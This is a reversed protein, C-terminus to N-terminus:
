DRKIINYQNNKLNKLTQIKGDSWTIKIEPTKKNNGLGVLVRSDHASAYSGDVKLQRYIKTSGLDVEIKASYDERKLEKRILKLGIWNNNSDNHNILIQPSGSNNTVVLDLDGDNDIDGYSVGRSVGSKLFSADQEKTMEKYKSKGINQWIQNVQELPYKLGQKMQKPEKIVAGNASFLDLMGDNNYDIWITGFGTSSFSTSGLGLKVGSDAFWGKGNNVYLTNTQRKLHTMFLDVDGDNDFDGADVGMSAEALGTMNVAVGSTMAMNRFGGKKDNIWLVNERGDNAVYLDIWGDNNFDASVVGLGPLAESKIGSRSSADTFIGKGNNHYLKDFSPVYGQPSCYDLSGDYSKCEMLNKINYEVYNVVYLDLFGDKDYDIFTASSSWSFGGTNSTDTIDKFTGDGNNLLMQNKGFNLVYLDLDGDNDIDGYTVGMGYGTANIKSKNTVDTFKIQGNKTDNRFLKDKLPFSKKDNFILDNSKTEGIMAGQNLYMDIDGDSDYDFLAVGGGMMEHFYFKGSMGNFHVFDVGSTLMEDKFIALCYNPNLVLFFLILKLSKM